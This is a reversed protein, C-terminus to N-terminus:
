SGCDRGQNQEERGCRVDPADYPDPQLPMKARKRQEGGLPSSQHKATTQDHRQQCQRDLDRISAFPVRQCAKAEEAQNLLGRLDPLKNFHSQEPRGFDSPWWPPTCAAGQHAAQWQMVWEALGPYEEDLDLVSDDSDYQYEEEQPRTATAPALAERVAMQLSATAAPCHLQLHRVTNAAEKDTSSCDDSEQNEQMDLGERHFCLDVVEQVDDPLIRFNRPVISTRIDGRPQLFGQGRTPFDSAYQGQADLDYYLQVFRRPLLILTPTRLCTPVILDSDMVRMDLCRLIKQCVQQDKDEHVRATMSSDRCCTREPLNGLARTGVLMTDYHEAMSHPEAYLPNGPDGLLDMISVHTVNIQRLKLNEEEEDLLATIDVSPMPASSPRGKRKRDKALHRQRCRYQGYHMAFQLMSRMLITRHGVCAGNMSWSDIYHSYASVIINRLVKDITLTLDPHRYLSNLNDKYNNAIRDLRVLGGFQVEVVAHFSHFLYCRKFYHRTKGLCFPVNLELIELASDRLSLMSYVKSGQM